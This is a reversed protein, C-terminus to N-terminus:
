NLFGVLRPGVATEVFFDGLLTDPLSFSAGRLAAALPQLPHAPKDGPLSGRRRGPMDAEACSCWMDAAVADEPRLSRKSRRRSFTPLANLSRCIVASLALSSSPRSSERRGAPSPASHWTAIGVELGAAPSQLGPRSRRTAEFTAGGVGVVTQRWTVPVSTANAEDPDLYEGGGVGGTAYRCEGGGM